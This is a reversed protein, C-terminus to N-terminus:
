PAKWITGGRRFQLGMTGDAEVELTAYPLVRPKSLDIVQGPQSREPRAGLYIQAKGDSMAGMWIRADGRQDLLRLMPASTLHLSARTWGDKDILDLSPENGYKVSLYVRGSDGHLNLGGDPELRVRDAGIESAMRLMPAGTMDLSVAVRPVQKRDYLYLGLERDEGAEGLVARVKGARDKLVLKEAEVTRARGPAQGMLLVAVLGLALAVGACKFRRNERELREIRRLLVDTATSTM